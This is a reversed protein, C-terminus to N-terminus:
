NTPYEPKPIWYTPNKIKSQFDGSLIKCKGIEREKNTVIIENGVNDYTMATEFPLWGSLNWGKLNMTDCILNMAKLHRKADDKLHGESKWESSQVVISGKTDVIHADTGDPFKYVVELPLEFPPPTEMDTEEKM